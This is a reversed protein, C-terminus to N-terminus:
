SSAAIRRTAFSGIILLVGALWFLPFVWGGPWKGSAVYNLGYFAGIGLLAMIGGPLPKFMGVLLGVLALGLAADLPTPRHRGEGIVFLVCLGALLGALIQGALRICMTM